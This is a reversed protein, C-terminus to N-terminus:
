STVQSHAGALCLFLVLFLFICLGLFYPTWFLFAIFPFGLISAPCSMFLVLLVSVLAEWSTGSLAMFLHEGRLATSQYCNMLLQEEKVNRNAVFSMHMKQLNQWDAM